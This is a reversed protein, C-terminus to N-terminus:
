SGSKAQTTFLATIEMDSISERGTSVDIVLATNNPTVWVLHNGMSYVDQMQPQQKLIQFYAPSMAKVTITKLKAQYREDIWVGGVEVCNVNQVRRVASRTLQCQNRLANCDVSLNVGLPGNQVRDLYGQALARNAEQNYFYRKNADRLAKEYYGKAENGSKYDFKKLMQEAMRGRNILGEGIKSQVQQAFKEVPVPTTGTTAKLGPPIATNDARGLHFSVDPKAGKPDAPVNAVPLPADPVILYSTFPTTIGYRKALTVVEEVLEKKEGNLRIQDLLYGVKRRAWLDEVFPKQEKTKKLFELEYVFERKEKGVTGALKIAAHDEGKYRGLVVLQSGHFLDPLQPPYVESIKVGNTVSLKLNALVPHSIKNYLSSVKAEIDESERVYTSVARSKEAMQDLMSANVDDGVGFTFIRTNATNGSVVNKLITDTNTEGITPRGDTFFVVTFTRSEDKSRLALAAKLAEDIATGGTAFLEDVWGKAQDTHDKKAPLLQDSYHNVTTAFQLIGFRDQERLNSLCYKVAKQAQVMRKGRMSGSTDLVFIVDRPVQQERSLEARPSVLMLFYGPESPNPRHLLTTLGVDKGGSSYYLQFDRDLLAQEKDFVVRARKDSPRTVTIAHTPSYINQVSHQSTIDVNISFEKLTRVAKGDTKLPYVFSILDHEKPAISTYEFSIKQDKNPPVPFVRLKFMKQGMYELLGPDLTRRVIDEYIKRAKKAEVLEGQVQSGDVWMNFKTVSGGKPVPFIYTAELPRDTHNRFTQEVKTIAVQDEIHITVNHNVMALPPVKKETPVLLGAGYAPVAMGFVLMATMVRTM